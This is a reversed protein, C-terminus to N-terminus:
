SLMKSSLMKSQLVADKSPCCILMKSQCRLMHKAPQCGIFIYGLGEPQYSMQFYVLFNGWSRTDDERSSLLFEAVVLLLFEAVLLYEEVQSSSYIFGKLFCILQARIASDFIPFGGVGSKLAKVLQQVRSLRSAHRPLVETWLELISVMLILNPFCFYILWRPITFSFLPM